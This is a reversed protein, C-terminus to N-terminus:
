DREDKGREKAPDIFQNFEGIIQAKTMTPVCDHCYHEKVGNLYSGCSPNDTKKGCKFCTVITAM